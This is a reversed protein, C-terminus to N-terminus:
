LCQLKSVQAQAGTPVGTPPSLVANAVGGPGLGATIENAKDVVIGNKTVALEIYIGDPCGDRTAVTIGYCGEQYSKCRVDAKPTWQWALTGKHVM